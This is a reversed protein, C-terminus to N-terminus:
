TEESTGGWRLMWPRIAALYAAVLGTGLAARASPRQRRALARLTSAVATGGDVDLVVSPGVTVGFGRVLDVISAEGGTLTQGVAERQTVSRAPARGAGWTATM